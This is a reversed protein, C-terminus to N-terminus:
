ECVSRQPSQGSRHCLKLWIWALVVFVCTEEDTALADPVGSLANEMRSQEGDEKGQKTESEVVQGNIFTM